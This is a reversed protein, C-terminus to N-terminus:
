KNREVFVYNIFVSFVLVEFLDLILGMFSIKYEIFWKELDLIKFM